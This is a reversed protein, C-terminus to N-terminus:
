QPGTTLPVAHAPCVAEIRRVQALVLEGAPAYTFRARPMAGTALIGPAFAGGVIVSMGREACLPLLAEAARQALLNYPGVLM